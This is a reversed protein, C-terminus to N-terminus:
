FAHKLTVGTVQNKINQGFGHELIKLLDKTDSSKTIKHENILIFKNPKIFEILNKQHTILLIIKDKKIKNIEKAITKLSDIDCGSDIEDLLLIKPNLLSMQIIENKKKQGGSFNVNSNRELLELDLNFKKFQPTVKKYLDFPDYNLNNVKCISKYLDLVKIGELELPNQPLYYFGLKAIENTELKNIVKNNFIVQGKTIKFAYHHLITKFLSSKGAGNPGVIAVVEGTKVKLNINKLIQKNGVDVSLNKLQLTNHKVLKMKLIIM